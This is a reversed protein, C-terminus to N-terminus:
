RQTQRPANVADGGVGGNKVVAVSGALITLCVLAAALPPTLAPAHERWAHIAACGFTFSGALLIALAQGSM